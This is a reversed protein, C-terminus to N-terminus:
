ADPSSARALELVELVTRGTARAVRMVDDFEPKIRTSGDPLSTVKVAVSEGLVTVSAMRRPLSRRDVAIRRVGISSSETLLVTELAAADAPRVLAEVRTGPRGKKMTTAMLVVDLAGKARLTEALASLYEGPMDDIDTALVILREVGDHGGGSAPEALIIRLANARGKFDKTGAGFGSRV